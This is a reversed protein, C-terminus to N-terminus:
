HYTIRMTDDIHAARLTIDTTQLYLEWDESKSGKGALLDSLKIRYVYDNPDLNEIDPNWQMEHEGTETQYDTVLDARGDYRLYVWEGVARVGTQSRMLDPMEIVKVLQCDYDCIVLTWGDETASCVFLYEDNVSFDNWTANGPIETRRVRTEEGTQLDLRMLRDGDPFQEIYFCADKGYLIREDSLSALTKVEFTNLDLKQVSGFILSDGYGKLMGYSGCDRSEGPEPMNTKLISGKGTALEYCVIASGRCRPSGEIDYDTADLSVSAFLYGRYLIVDNVWSGYKEYPFSFQVLKEIRTGDNAYRLVCPGEGWAGDERLPSTIMYLQDDYSIFRGTAYTKTSAVCYENGDHLCNPRACLPVTEGTANSKFCYVAHQNMERLPFSDTNDPDYCLEYVDRSFYVGDETEASWTMADSAYRDTHYPAATRTDDTLNLTVQEEATVIEAQSSGDYKNYGGLSGRMAVMATIGGGALVAATVIAGIAFKGIKKMLHRGKRAAAESRARAARRNVMDFYRKDAREVARLFDKRRIKM